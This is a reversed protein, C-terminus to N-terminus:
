QEKALTVSEGTYIIKGNDQLKELCDVLRQRIKDGTKSFGFLRAVEIILADSEMGVCQQLILTMAEYIEQNPIYEINRITEPFGQVPIRVVVQELSVPWIYNGDTIISGQNVSKQMAEEVALRIRRGVKSINWVGALRKAVLDVHIPGEINAIKNILRSQESRCVPLHFDIHSFPSNELNCLQYNVVGQLTEQSETKESALVREINDDIVNQYKSENSEVEDNLAENSNRAEEIAQKLKEITKERRNFWEPSWIRHFQWGLNELVQQRLRDRDRASAASHYSAGDCEVALIFKGPQAPDVVGIDIRYGSCGVQPVVQYGMQRIVGAVDEEFPSDAEGMGEPHDMSLASEGHEAYNLYHYLNLVGASKTNNLNIDAARISSVLIVSEKARTIAVNLRREGGSMNLPGFVMTIKGNQDRGYGVSFIIIDREDGQVNELNKVFFGELRGEKFFSEYQPTILRRKELENEIAVKQAQSFTVVGISKQPWKKFHDFVQDVVVQAERINIRKGGRDYVGDPVYLFHVGLEPHQSFASPFTVLRDDYFQHNSFAILSEHKSRYHWRLMMGPLVTGCEDLVSNFDASSFEDEDDQTYEGDGTDMSRFFNTPPMQKSDGAIVVQKGRYIAVIADETFIQSAEDFIVLDFMFCEPNIFQSVSLPSMMLCPKIRLLLNPIKEFLRMVPMQRRSKSAERKLINIESGSSMFGNLNPRRSNCQEMIAYPTHEILKKDVERFEAILQEHHKGRFEGLREDQQFLMDVQMKYFSKTFVNMLDQEKPPNNELAELFSKLGGLELRQRLRKYDIWNELDNIREQMTILSKLSEKISLLNLQIGKYAPGDEVFEMKVKEYNNVFHNYPIKIDNALTTATRGSSIFDVFELSLTKESFIDKLKSTWEVAVLIENWTTKLGQFRAGFKEQLRQSEMKILEDIADLRNKAALDNIVISISIMEVGNYAEFVQDLSHFLQLLIPKLNNTWQMLDDYSWNSVPIFESLKGAEEHWDSITNQLSIAATVVDRPIPEDSDLSHIVGKPISSGKYISRLEVALGIVKDLLDFDTNFGTYYPGFNERMEVEKEIIKKELSLTARVKLLDEAINNPLEFKKTCRIILKKDTYYQPNIYKMFSSYSFGQFKEILRDVDLAFFSEEYIALLENRNTVYEIYIPRVEELLLAMEKIRKTNLWNSLPKNEENCINATKALVQSSEMTLSEISYQFVEAILQSNKVTRQVFDVQKHLFNLLEERKEIIKEGVTENPLYIKADDWAFQIENKVASKLLFYDDKYKPRLKRNIEWYEETLQRYTQAESLVDDIDSTLLWGKDPIVGLQIHEAVLILWPVEALSQLTSNGTEISYADSAAIIASLEETLQRLLQNWKEVVAKDYKTEKCGLWSFQDKEEAICWLPILQRVLESWQLYKNPGLNNLTAVQIPVPELFPFKSAMSMSEFASCGIEKRPEHIAEVYSNLRQRLGILREADEKSPITRPKLMYELSEYLKSIVEHKNAKRSHLELCYDGLGADSLRKAVVELAAMKESVFLVTKGRALFETIINSITQSKGTGPPGQLVISQGRLVAQICQQQSSDADLIQFTEDPIQISDMKRPDDIEKLNDAVSVDGGCLANICEHDELYAFNNELDHYMGLKEFSFVGLSTTKETFWGIELFAVEVEKLYKFIGTEDINEPVSPLTVNFDRKLKVQLAPNLILEEEVLSLQFPDHATERVLEVPCLLIPSRVIEANESEKWCLMGFTIHLVRVGREEYEEKSKLFLNKLIKEIINKELNGCVLEDSEPIVEVTKELEETIPESLEANINEEPLYFKWNKNEIYIRTFIEELPPQTIELTFSKKKKYFILQNNRSLDILREKWEDVRKRIVSAMGANGV